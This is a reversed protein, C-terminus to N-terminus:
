KARDQLPSIVKMKCIKITNNSLHFGLIIAMKQKLNKDQVIPFFIKIKLEFKKKHLHIFLCLFKNKLKKRMSDEKCTM